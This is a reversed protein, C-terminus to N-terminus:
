AATDLPPSWSRHMGTSYGILLNVATLVSVCLPVNELQDPNWIALGAVLIIIAIVSQSYAGRAALKLKRAVLSGIIMAGLPTLLLFALFFAIGTGPGPPGTDIRAAVTNAHFCGYAIVVAAAVQALSVLLTRFMAVVRENHWLSSRGGHGSGNAQESM